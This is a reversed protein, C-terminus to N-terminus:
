HRLSGIYLHIKKGSSNFSLTVIIVLPIGCLILAILFCVLHRSTLHSFLVDGDSFIHSIYMLRKNTKMQHVGQCNEQM